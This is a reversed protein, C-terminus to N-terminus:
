RAAGAASPGREGRERKVAARFIWLRVIVLLSLGIAVPLPTLRYAAVAAILIMGIAVKQTIESGGGPEVGLAPRSRGTTKRGRNKSKM